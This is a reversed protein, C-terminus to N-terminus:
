EVDNILKQPERRTDWFAAVEIYDEYMRYVIKNLRNVILSRYTSPRDSLLPEVAGINPNASLLANAEYVANLFHRREKQGFCRQIYFGNPDTTRRGSIDVKGEYPKGFHQM